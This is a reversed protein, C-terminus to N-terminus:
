EGVLSRGATAGAAFVLPVVSARRQAVARLEMSRVGGQSRRRAGRVSGKSGAAIRGLRLPLLFFLEEAQAGACPIEEM